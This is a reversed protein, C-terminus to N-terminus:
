VDLTIGSKAFRSVWALIEKRKEKRREKLEPPLRSGGRFEPWYCYKPMVQFHLPRPASKVLGEFVGRLTDSLSDDKKPDWHLVLTKLSSPLLSLFSEPYAVRCDSQVTVRLLSTSASIATALTELNENYTHQINPQSDTRSVRLHLHALSSLYPVLASAWGEQEDFSLDLSRLTKKLPRLLDSLKHNFKEDISDSTWRVHRLNPMRSALDYGLTGFIYPSDDNLRLSQLSSFVGARGEIGSEGSCDFDRMDLSLINPTMELLDFLQATGNADEDDQDWGAHGAKIWSDGYDSRLESEWEDKMDKPMDNGAWKWLDAAHRDNYDMNDCYDEFYQAVNAEDDIQLDVREDVWEERSCPAEVLISLVLRPLAANLQFTDLLKQGNGALWEIKLHGYLLSYAARQFDASVRALLALKKNRVGPNEFSYRESATCEDLIRTLIEPPLHFRGFSSTGPLTTPPPLSHPPPQLPRPTPTLRREPERILEEAPYRPTKTDGVQSVQPKSATADIGSNYGDGPRVDSRRPIEARVVFEHGREEVGGCAERGEDVGDVEREAQGIGLGVFLGAGCILFHRVLPNEWEMERRRSASAVSRCAGVRFAQGEVPM